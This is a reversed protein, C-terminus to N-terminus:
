DLQQIYMLIRAVQSKLKKFQSNDKVLATASQLRLKFLEQRTYDLKELLQAKNLQKLEAKVQNIKMIIM